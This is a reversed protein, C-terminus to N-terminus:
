TEIITEAKVEEAPKEAASKQDYTSTPKRNTSLNYGKNKDRKKNAPLPSGSIVIYDVFQIVRFLFNDLQVKKKREKM